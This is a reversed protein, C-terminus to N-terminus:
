LTLPTQCVDRAQQEVGALAEVTTAAALERAATEIRAQEDESVGSPPEGRDYSAPDIGADDLADVLEQIRGVLLSWEDRIDRPAKAELEEFIPLARILATPGGGAVAESLDAQQAEVEDCYSEYPDESCGTSLLALTALTALLGCRVPATM